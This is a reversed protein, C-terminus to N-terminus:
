STLSLLADKIEDVRNQWSNAQGINQRQIIQSIDNEEFAKVILSSFTKRDDAIYVVSRYKEAERFKTTVVPKGASLYEYLKIPNTSEILNDVKFPIICVGSEHYYKALKNYEVLGFYKVNPLKSVRKLYGGRDPGVFWFTFEPMNHICYEALEIDFWHSIVGSYLVIKNNNHSKDPSIYFYDYDAGNLVLFSKNAYGGKNELLKSASFICFDALQLLDEEIKRVTSKLYYGKWGLHEDFCDYVINSKNRVYDVAFPYGVWWIDVKGIESKSQVYRILIGLIVNNVKNIFRFINAAPLFIAPLEVHVLNNNHLDITLKLKNFVEKPHNKLISLINEMKSFQVIKYEKSLKEFIQERRGKVSNRLPPM